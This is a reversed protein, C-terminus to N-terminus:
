RWLAHNVSVSGLYRHDVSIDSEALTVRREGLTRPTAMGIYQVPEEYTEVAPPLRKEIYADNNTAPSTTAEFNM